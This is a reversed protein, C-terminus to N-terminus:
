AQCEAAVETPDQNHNQTNSKIFVSMCFDSISRIAGILHRVQVCREGLLARPPQRHLCSCLSATHMPASLNAGWFCSPTTPPHILDINRVRRGFPLSGLSLSATAWLSRCYATVWFGAPSSTKIGIACYHHGCRNEDHGDRWVHLPFSAVKIWRKSFSFSTDAFYSVSVSKGDRTLCIQWERSPNLPFILPPKTEWKQNPLGTKQM